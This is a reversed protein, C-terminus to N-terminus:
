EQMLLLASEELHILRSESDKYDTLTIIYAKDKIPLSELYQYSVNKSNIQM